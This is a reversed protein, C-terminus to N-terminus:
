GTRYSACFSISSIAFHYQWCSIAPLRSTRARRQLRRQQESATILYARFEKARRIQQAIKRSLGRLMAMYEEFPSTANYAQVKLDNVCCELSELSSKTATGRRGPPLACDAEAEQYIEKTNKLIKELVKIQAGPLYSRSYLTVSIFASAVALAGVAYNFIDASSMM